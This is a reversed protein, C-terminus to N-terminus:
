NVQQFTAQVNTSITLTAELDEMPALVPPDFGQHLARKTVFFTTQVVCSASSVKENAGLEYLNSAIGREARMALRVYWGGIFEV